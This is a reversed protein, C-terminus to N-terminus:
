TTPHVEFWVQMCETRTVGWRSVLGNVIHLGFGGHEDPDESMQDLSFGVGCDTVKGRVIQDSYELVVEIQADSGLGSHRVSNTVLETFVVGLRESLEQGCVEDLAHVARRVSGISQPHTPVDFRFTLLEEVAAVHQPRETRSRRNGLGM